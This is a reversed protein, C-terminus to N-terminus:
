RGGRYALERAAAELGAGLQLELNSLIGARNAALTDRLMRRAPMKGTSRRRKTRREATGDEVIISHNGMKTPSSGGRAYGVVGIVTGSFSGWYTRSIKNGFKTITKVSRRLGGSRVPTAARLAPQFPRIARRMAATMHKRALQAPLQGFARILADLEPNTNEPFYSHFFTGSRSM